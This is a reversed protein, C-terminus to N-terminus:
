AVTIQRAPAGFFKLKGLSLGIWSFYVGRGCVCFVIGSSRRDANRTAECASSRPKPNVLYVAGNDVQEVVVSVIWRTDPNVVLM